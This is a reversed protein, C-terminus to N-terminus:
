TEFRALALLESTPMASVLICILNGERHMVANIGGRSYVYFNAKKKIDYFHAATAPADTEAGLFTYCTVTAAEGEYIIVLLKRGNVEQVTGAVPKLHMKSLNYTMPAFSGAVSRFLSDKIEEASGAKIVPAEGRLIRQHIELASLSVPERDPKMVYLVPLALLVLLAVALAPRPSFIVRWAPRNKVVPQWPYIGRDNLIKERLTVPAKLDAVAGRIESKLALHQRYLLECSSCNKLHAEIAARELASLQNDVLATVLEGAEECKM